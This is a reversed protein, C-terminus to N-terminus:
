QNCNGALSYGMAEAETESTFFLKNEEKIQKAGPCWIYHYKTGSKSAVITKESTTTGTVMQRTKPQILTMKPAQPTNKVDVITSYRGLGFSTLAILVLLLGFYVADELLFAKINNLM